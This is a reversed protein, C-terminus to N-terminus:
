GELRGVRFSSFFFDFLDFSRVFHFIRRIKDKKEKM